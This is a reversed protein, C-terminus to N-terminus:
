EVKLLSEINKSLENLGNKYDNSNIEFTKLIVLNNTKIEFEGRITITIENNAIKSM